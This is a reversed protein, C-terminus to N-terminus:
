ACIAYVEIEVTRAPDDLAAVQVLTSAPRVSAFAEHHARAVLDADAMNTVYTVTRVVDAFSAGLEVLSQEIIELANKSQVYTDCDDVYPAQATTGSVHVHSGVRIARSYGFTEESPDGSQVTIRKM